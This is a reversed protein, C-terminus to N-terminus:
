ENYTAANYLLILILIAITFKLHRNYLYIEIEPKFYTKDFLNCRVSTQGLNLVAVNVSDNLHM